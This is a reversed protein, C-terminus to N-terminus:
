VKKVCIWNTKSRSDHFLHVQVNTPSMRYTFTYPFLHNLNGSEVGSKFAGRFLPNNTCPAIDTFFSKGEAAAPTIGGLDSEYKNYLLVKGENDVKVVGYALADVEARSMNALNGLTGGDVFSNKSAEAARKMAQELMASM